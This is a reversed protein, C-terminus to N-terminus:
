SLLLMQLLRLVNTFASVIGAWMTLLAFHIMLTFQIL